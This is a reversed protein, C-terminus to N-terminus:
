NKRDFQYEADILKMQLLDQTAPSTPGGLLSGSTANAIKALCLRCAKEEDQKKNLIQIIENPQALSIISKPFHLTPPPQPPPPISGSGSNGGTTNSSFSTQQTGQHSSHSQQQQQQQQQDSLNKVSIDDLINDVHEKLAAQQEQFQLLKLLRAEDISINMKFVKGLDRGRDAEVIVLDGVKLNM